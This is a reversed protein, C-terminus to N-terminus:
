SPQLRPAGAGDRIRALLMAAVQELGARSCGGEQSEVFGALPGRRFSVTEGSLKADSTVYHIAADGLGSIVTINPGREDVPYTTRAADASSYRRVVAHVVHGLNRGGIPELSFSCAPIGDFNHTEAHLTGAVGCASFVESYTLLDTCVSPAPPAAAATTSPPAAASSAVQRPQEDRNGCASMALVLPLVLLSSPQM